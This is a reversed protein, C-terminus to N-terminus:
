SSTATIGDFFEKLEEDSLDKLDRDLKVLVPKLQNRYTIAYDVATSWADGDLALFVPVLRSAQIEQVRDENLHTGLLAVSTLYDSARM